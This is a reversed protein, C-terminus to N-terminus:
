RKTGCWDKDKYDTLEAIITHSLEQLVKELLVYAWMISKFTDQYKEKITHLEINYQICQLYKYFQVTDINDVSEKLDLMEHLECKGGDRYAANSSAENLTLLCVVWSEIKEENQQRLSSCYNIDCVKRFKYTQAKRNIAQYVELSPVLVSM